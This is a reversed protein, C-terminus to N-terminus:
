IKTQIKIGETIKLLDHVFNAGRSIIVGTFISGLYPIRLPIDFIVFFDIGTAVALIIGTIITGLRDVSIKDKEWILKITEWISEAFIAVLIVQTFSVGIGGRFYPQM